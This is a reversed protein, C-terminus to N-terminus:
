FKEKLFHHFAQKNEKKRFHFGIKKGFENLESILLKSNCTYLEKFLENMYQLLIDNFDSNLIKIVQSLLYIHEESIGPIPISRLVAGDIQMLNGKLKSYFNLWLKCIDCNLAFFISPILNKNNLSTIVNTSLDTVLPIESYIFRPSKTMRISIIRPETFIKKLRPWHLEYWKIKNSKNERRNEMISQFKMLHRTLNPHKSKSLIINRHIYIIYNKHINKQFDGKFYALEIDRPYTFPLLLKKEEVNLNLNTVERETLVFVGTKKVPVGGNQNELILINKSNLRDPGAIVGQNVNAFDSLPRFKKRILELKEIEDRDQNFIMEYESNKLFINKLPIIKTSIDKYLEESIANTIILPDISSYHCLKKGTNSKDGRIKILYISSHHGPALPFLSRNKFDYFEFKESSNFIHKRIKLANKNRLFYNPTIFAIIGRPNIMEFALGLFLLYFDMRPMYYKQHLPNELVKDILKKNDKESIYPPNSIIADFKKSIEFKKLIDECKVNENIIKIIEVPSQRNIDSNQLVWLFYRIKLIVTAYVDSDVTNILNLIIELSFGSKLLKNCLALTFAGTGACLDLIRFTQKSSINESGPRKQTTQSNKFIQSTQSSQFNQSYHKLDSNQILRYAMFEAIQRPTYYVGQQSMNKSKKIKKLSKQFIKFSRNEISSINSFTLDKSLIHQFIDEYFYSYIDPTIKKDTSDDANITWEFIDMKKRLNQRFNDFIKGFSNNPHILKFLDSNNLGVSELHKELFIEIVIFFVNSVNDVAFFQRKSCFLIIEPWIEDLLEANKKYYPM